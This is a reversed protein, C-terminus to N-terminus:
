KDIMFFSNIHKKLKIANYRLPFQESIYLDISKQYEGSLIKEINFKPWQALYRHEEVSFSRKPIILFAILILLIYIFHWTYKLSKIISRSKINM